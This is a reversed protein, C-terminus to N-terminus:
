CKPCEDIGGLKGHIPCDYIEDDDISTEPDFIEGCAACRELCYLGDTFTDDNGYQYTTQCGCNPCAM